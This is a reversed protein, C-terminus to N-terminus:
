TDSWKETSDFHIYGRYRHWPHFAHAYTGGRGDLPYEDAHDGYVFALNFDPKELGTVERFTLQTHKAWDDFAQQIHQRTKKSDYFFHDHELKWKLTRNTPRPFFM